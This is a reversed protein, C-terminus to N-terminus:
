FEWSEAKKLQADAAERLAELTGEPGKRGDAPCGLVDLLRKAAGELRAVHLRLRKVEENM